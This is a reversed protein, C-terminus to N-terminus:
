TCFVDHPPPPTSPLVPLPKHYFTHYFQFITPNSCFNTHYYIHVGHNHYTVFLCFLCFSLFSLFTFFLCLVSSGCELVLPGTAGVTRTEYIESADFIKQQKCLM